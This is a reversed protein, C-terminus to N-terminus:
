NEQAQERFRSPVFRFLIKGLRLLAWEQELLPGTQAPGYRSDRAGSFVLEGWSVRALFFHIRDYSPPEM